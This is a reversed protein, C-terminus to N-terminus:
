PPPPNLAHCALCNKELAELATGAGDSDGAKAANELQQAFALYSQAYEIRQKKGSKAWYATELKALAVLKTAQTVVSPMAKAALDEHIGDKLDGADDMHQKHTAAADALVSGALVFTLAGAIVRNRSM